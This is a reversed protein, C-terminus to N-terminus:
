KDPDYPWPSFGHLGVLDGMVIAQKRTWGLYRCIKDDYDPIMRLVVEDITLQRARLADVEYQFDDDATEAIKSDTRKENDERAVFNICTLRGLLLEELVPDLPTYLLRDDLELSDQMALYLRAYYNTYYATQSSFSHGNNFWERLEAHQWLCALSIVDSITV